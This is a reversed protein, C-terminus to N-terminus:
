DTQREHHQAQRLRDALWTSVVANRSIALESDEEDLGAVMCAPMTLTVQKELPPHHEVITLEDFSFAIHDACKQSIASRSCGLLKAIQQQTVCYYDM